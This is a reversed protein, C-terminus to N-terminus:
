NYIGGTGRQNALVLLEHMHAMHALKVGTDSISIVGNRFYMKKLYKLRKLYLATLFMLNQFLLTGSFITELLAHYGEIYSSNM